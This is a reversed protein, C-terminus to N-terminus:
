SQTDMCAKEMLNRNKNHGVNECCFTSYLIDHLSDSRMCM